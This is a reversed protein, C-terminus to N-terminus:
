EVDSLSVEISTCNDLLESCDSITLNVPPVTNVFCEVSSSNAKLEEVYEKIGGGGSGRAYADEYNIFLDMLQM